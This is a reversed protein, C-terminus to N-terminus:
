GAPPGTSGRVVLAAPIEQLPPVPRGGLDAALATFAAAGLAEADFGVTTLPPDLVRAFDLDDFGVVSLRQPIAVGRARAALYAGGALIDDDCYLATAGGDILEGAAVAAAEFDHAAHATRAPPVGAAALAARLHGARALFTSEPVASALHGIARHGLELLHAAAARTGTKVDVRVVPLRGPAAEIAVAHPLPDPPPEMGFLLVGDAPGARLAEFSALEWERDNAADVLAVAYGAARAATQAGRLVRGFIPNTVDPVVLGVTRAAGTRLARAAVNPHYGLEEATRRVLAATRASIRGRGKGSLVLSVTSQSVGARRAVDVSTV